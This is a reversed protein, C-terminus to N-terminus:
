SCFLFDSWSNHLVKIVLFSPLFPFPLSFFFAIQCFRPPVHGVSSDFDQSKLSFPIIIVVVTLNIEM